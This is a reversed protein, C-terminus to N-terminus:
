NLCIRDFGLLSATIKRDISFTTGALAASGLPLSNIRKECDDLRESDRVLMEYWAMMHHGFTVPQAMQLHTLGPLITEAEREAVDLLAIQLYKLENRIPIIMDRLYLRMDTSVQDNRSRGTHLKKGVNGILSILRAEINMHVDELTISWKFKNNEIETRIIELGETIQDLENESIVHVKALMTAHAISGQIDQKYMRQDFHVSSTFEEVITNTPQLLRTSSQKKNTISM